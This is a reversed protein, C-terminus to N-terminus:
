PWDSGSLKIWREKGEGKEQIRYNNPRIDISVNYRRIDRAM